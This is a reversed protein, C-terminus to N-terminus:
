MNFINNIDPIVDINSTISNIDALTSTDEFIEITSSIIKGYYCGGINGYLKFFFSNINTDIISDPFVNLTVVKSTEGPLFTINGKNKEM